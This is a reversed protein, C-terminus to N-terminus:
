SSGLMKVLLSTIDPRVVVDGHAPVLVAPPDARLERALFARAAKADSVFFTFFLTFLKLGPASNSWKFILRVVPNKPLEPINAVMDSVYLITGRESRVRLLLDGIKDGDMALLAVSGGLSGTLGEVPALKGADPTKKRIRAAARPAAYTCASPFAKSWPGLGLYHAGNNAVLALVGGAEAFGSLEAPSIHKPPSVVLFGGAPLQVAVATAKGGGFSYEKILVRPTEALSTWGPIPATM